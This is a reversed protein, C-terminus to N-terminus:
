DKFLDHRKMQFILAEHFMEPMQKEVARTATLVIGTRPVRVSQKSMDHVQDIKPKRKGGSVRYIGPHKPLDLFVFRRGESAAIKVRILAEQGKSKANVRAKSLKIKSKRRSSSAVRRRPQAGRGEGSATTTAIPVGHKGSKTVTAGFEQDEMYPAVSGVVSEQHKVVNGRAKEVRVSNMTFKNRIIFKKRMGAQIRERGEFAAKNLTAKTAFPYAKIAFEKLDSEMQKIAETDVKFM